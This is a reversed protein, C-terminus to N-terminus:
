LKYTDNKIYQQINNNNCFDIVQKNYNLRGFIIKDVYKISELISSFDQSIINPTPYPEISVWTKFGKKHLYKLHEIRDIYPASGPESDQRYDENLSILIIGYENESSTTELEKPLLGNTLTICKINYYNIKKIINISMDCIESYGLMFPDPM